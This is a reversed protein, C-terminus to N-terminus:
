TGRDVSDLMKRQWADPAFGTVRDDKRPDSQIDILEGGYELQYYIMNMGLDLRKMKAEASAKMGAPVEFGLSAWLDVVQEKQKSDLYQWHTVFCDKLRGVFTVAQIRRSFICRTIVALSLGFCVIALLAYM